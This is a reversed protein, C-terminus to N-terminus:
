SQMEKHWDAYILFESGFICRLDMCTLVEFILHPSLSLSNSLM